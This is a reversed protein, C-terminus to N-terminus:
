VQEGKMRASLAQRIEGVNWASVRPGLKKPAPLKSAKVWRWLTAPSCSFLAVLHPLRVFASDPLADFYPLLEGKWNKCNKESSRSTLISAGVAATVPNAEGLLCQQGTRRHKTPSLNFHPHKM